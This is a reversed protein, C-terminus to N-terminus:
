YVFDSLLPVGDVVYLPNNSATLSRTGRIRVTGISGPRENSTIDVGAAKGQLAELANAVPRNMLQEASVSAVAGTVDSKKQTGYGVVVVENLQAIDDALKVNIESNTGVAIEQTKSGTSSFVLVQGQTANVSFKGDFDTTTGTKTGKVLVNAGPIPLGSVDTITGKVVKNQSYATTHLLAFLAFILLFNLKNKM